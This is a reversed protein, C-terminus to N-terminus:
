KKVMKAKNASNFLQKGDLNVTLEAAQTGGNKLSKLEAEDRLRQLENTRREASEKDSAAQREANVKRQADDLAIRFKEEQGTRIGNPNSQKQIQLLRELELENASLGRNDTILQSAKRRRESDAAAANAVENRKTELAIAEEIERNNAQIVSTLQTQAQSVRGISDIASEAANSYDSYAKAAVKGTDDITVNLKAQAAEAKLQAELVDTNDSVALRAALAREAYVEFAAAVDRVNTATQAVAQFAAKSSEAIRNLETTSTLGLTKFQRELSEINIQAISDSLLKSQDIGTAMAREFSEKFVVLDTDSLSRIALRLRDIELVGPDMATKIATAAKESAGKISDFSEKTITLGNSLEVTKGKAEELAVALANMRDTEANTADILSNLREDVVEGAVTTERLAGTAKGAGVALNTFSEAASGVVNGISTAVEGIVAGDAKLTEAIDTLLDGERFEKLTERTTNALDQLGKKVGQDGIAILLKDAEDSLKTMAGGLTGIQQAAAGSGFKGLQGILLEIEERGLKGAKQLNLVEATTIGMAEALLRTAPIGRESLQNMEEQQIRGLSLSQTLATIIGNLTETSGGVKANADVLGLLTARTPELGQTKLRLATNTLEKLPIASNESVAKIDAEFQRLGTNDGTFLGRVRAQISDFARNVDIFREVSFAATIGAGAVAAAQAISGLVNRVNGFQSFLSNAANTSLRAERQRFQENSASLKNNAVENAAVLKAKLAAEASALKEGQLREKVASQEALLQKKRIFAEEALLRKAQLAQENVLLKDAIAKANTGDFKIGSAKELEDRLDKIRQKTQEIGQSSVSVVLKAM